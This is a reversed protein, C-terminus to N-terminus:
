LKKFRENIEHARKDEPSMKDTAKQRADSKDAGQSGTGSNDPFDRAAKGAPTEAWEAMYESLSQTGIMAKGDVISATSAIATQVMPMLDKSVDLAVLEAAVGNTVLLEHLQSHLGKSKDQEALLAKEHSQMYLVKADDYNKGLEAKELESAAHYKELEKMKESTAGNESGIGKIKDLLEQNKTVLGGARGNAAELLAAKLEDAPLTFDIKSLDEEYGNLM